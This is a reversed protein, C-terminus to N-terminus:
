LSGIKQGHPTATAAMMPPHGDTDLCTQVCSRLDHAPKDDDTLLAPLRRRHPLAPDRVKRAVDGFSMREHEADAEASPLRHPSRRLFVEM